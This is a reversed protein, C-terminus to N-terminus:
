PGENPTQDVSKSVARDTHKSSDHGPSCDGQGRERGGDGNKHEGISDKTSKAKAEDVKWGDDTDSEVKLRAAGKGCADRNTPRANASEEKCGNGVM